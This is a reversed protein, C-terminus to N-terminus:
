KWFSTDFISQVEEPFTESIECETSPINIEPNYEKYSKSIYINLQVDFESFAERTEDVQYFFYKKGDSGIESEKKNITHIPLPTGAGYGQFIQILHDKDFWYWDDSEMNSFDFEVAMIGEYGHETKEQMLYINSLQLLGDDTEIDYPFSFEEEDTNNDSNMSDTNGSEGTSGDGCGTFCVCFSLMLLFATIRKM